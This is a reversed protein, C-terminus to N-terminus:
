INILTILQSYIKNIILSFSLKSKVTLKGINAVKRCVAQSSRFWCDSITTYPFITRIAAIAAREFDVIIIQPQWEPVISFIKNFLATYARETKRSILAFGM